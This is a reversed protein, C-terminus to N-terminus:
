FRAGAMLTAESSFASDSNADLKGPYLDLAYQGLVFASPRRGFDYGVRFLTTFGASILTGGGTARVISLFNIGGGPGFRLGGFHVEYTGTWGVETVRLGALTRGFLLQLNMYGEHRARASGVSLALGGGLISLDFLRRYAGAAGMRFAAARPPSVLDDTSPAETPTDSRVETPLHSPLKTSGRDSAGTSTQGFANSM